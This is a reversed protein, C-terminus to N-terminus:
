ICPQFPYGPCKAPDVGAPYALAAGAANHASVNDCIPYGPCKEYITAAPQNAPQNNTLLYFPCNPYGPCAAPDIGAPVQVSASFALAVLSSVILLRLM